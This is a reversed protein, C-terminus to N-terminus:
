TATRSRARRSPLPGTVLEPRHFSGAMVVAGTVPRAPAGDATRRRRDPAPVDAALLEYLTALHSGSRQSMTTLGINDAWGLVRM